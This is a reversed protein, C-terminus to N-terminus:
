CPFFHTHVLRSSIWRVSLPTSEARDGGGERETQLLVEQLRAGATERRLALSLVFGIAACGTYIGIPYWISFDNLSAVFSTAVGSLRSVAACLGM